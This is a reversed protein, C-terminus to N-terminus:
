DVTEGSCAAAEVSCVAGISGWRIRMERASGNNKAFAPRGSATAEGGVLKCDLFELGDLLNRLDREKVGLQLRVGV